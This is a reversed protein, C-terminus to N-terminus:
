VYCCPRDCNDLKCLCVYFFNHSVCYYSVFIQTQKQALKHTWKKSTPFIFPKNEIVNGGNHKKEMHLGRNRPAIPTSSSSHSCVLHTTRPFTHPFTLFFTPLVTLLFTHCAKLSFHFIILWRFITFLMYHSSVSASGILTLIAVTLIGWCSLLILKPQHCVSDIYLWFLFLHIFTNWVM